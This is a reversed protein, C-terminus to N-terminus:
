ERYIEYKDSLDCYKKLEALYEDQTLQDGEEVEWKDMHEKKWELDKKVDWKALNEKKSRYGYKGGLGSWFRTRWFQEKIKLARTAEDKYKETMATILKPWKDNCTHKIKNIEKSLPGTTGGGGTGSLYIVLHPTSVKKEQTVFRDMWSVFKNEYDCFGEDKTIANNTAENMERKVNEYFKAKMDETIRNSGYPNIRLIPIASKLKLEPSEPSTLAEYTHFPNLMNGIGGGLVENDAVLWVNGM